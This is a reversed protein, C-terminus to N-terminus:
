STATRRPLPLSYILLGLWILLLASFQAGGLPEGLLTVACLLQLIPNIYQVMGFDALSLRRAAFSYLVLPVATVAGSAVLLTRTMGNGGLLAGGEPLLLLYAIALPAMLLTEVSVGVLADVVLQKRVFGYLGFTIPLAVLVWPLRGRDLALILVALLLLGVAAMQRRTLRERLLVVGLALTVLPMAFYALGADVAQHRTVAWIYCGWNATVCLSSAALGWLLRPSNLTRVMEALRGAAVLVTLCLLMSWLVRHCLVELPSLLAL